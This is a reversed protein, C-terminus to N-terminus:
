PALDSPPSWGILQRKLIAIYSNLGITPDVAAIGVIVARRRGTSVQRHPSRPEPSGGADQAAERGPPTGTM